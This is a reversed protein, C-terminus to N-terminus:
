SNNEIKVAKEIANYVDLPNSGSVCNSQIISLIKGLSLSPKNYLIWEEAKEKSKFVIFNWGSNISDYNSQDTTTTDLIFSDKNVLYFKDREYIKENDGNTIFLPEIKEM